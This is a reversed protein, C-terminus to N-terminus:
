AGAQSILLAAALVGSGLLCVALVGMLGWTVRRAAGQRRAAALIAVVTLTGWIGPSHLDFDVLCHLAFAGLALRFAWAPPWPLRMALHVTGVALGALLLPWLWWTADDNGLPWWATNSVLTGLAAFFPLIGLLPLTAAPAAIAAPPADRGRAGLALWALLAALLLGAPIGGDVAAELVDNHVSRSTETGPPIVRAHHAAFAHLGHGALPAEAVLTAAGRWYGLRVEASRELGQKLAPIGIIALTLVIVGALPLWRWPGRATTSWVTGAAVALAAIAGKSKAGLFAVAGALGLALLTSRRCLVLPLVLLLFGALTNALTFTGFMGGNAIREGLEGKATELALMTPDGAALKAAMAPLTWVPQLLAVVIEVAGGGLLAALALRERGPVVQCLWFAFGLNILLANWTGWAVPADHALAASPLLGAILVGAILGGPGWRLWPRRGALGEGVLVGLAVIVLLMWALHDWASREGSWVLPRLVLLAVLLAEHWRDCRTPAPQTPRDPAATM